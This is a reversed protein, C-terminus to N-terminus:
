RIYISSGYATSADDALVVSRASGTCRPGSYVVATEDTGNDVVLPRQLTSVDHCGSPDEYPVGNVLLVGTAAQASCPAALAIMGAAALTGLSTAIRRM